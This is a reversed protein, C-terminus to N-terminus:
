SAIDDPLRPGRPLVRAAGDSKGAAHLRRFWAAFPLFCDLLVFLLTLGSMLLEEFHGLSRVKTKFDANEIALFM